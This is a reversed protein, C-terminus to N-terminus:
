GAGPTDIGLFKLNQCIHSHGAECAPCAGCPDLPRVVVRDGPQWESVNTGVEAITGSMEHGIIQPDAVRQDMHGLYIHFDTGCVGCYAIDIRVDNPGPPTTQIDAVKFTKNRHYLAAQM